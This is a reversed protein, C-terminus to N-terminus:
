PTPKRLARREAVVAFFAPTPRGARDFLLPYSTRGPVPWNNLWSDGDRVGWFTVRDIAERHALYVGFLDAYRRALARQVSDPLGATYPDLEARRAARDTVEAGRSPTPRPLVDVDLESINVKVGIREFATFMSDALAPSPWDMKVHDQSGVATVPIGAARLQLVLRVAGDRKAPNELSYDNYYLEAGPDAEHAFRFALVLYDDGIIRRWPTDRLTGDDNLAENVVDWGRVRGRYRGVVTAIHDRMRAILVDRTVPKGLSDEFVWKPTQNHWVLTHGVVFMGNREGFAVYRDAPAFDYRGPAPHVHEWKLVNEPTIADFQARIIAAGLTDLGDFQAENVAAGVHFDAAFLQRLSPVAPDDATPTAQALCGGAVLTAALATAARAGLRAMRKRASM